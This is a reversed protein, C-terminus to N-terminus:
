FSYGLSFGAYLRYFIDDGVRSESFRDQTIPILLGARYMLGGTPKQHRFGLRITTVKAFKNEYVNRDFYYGTYKKMGILNLGVGAEAFNKSEARKAWLLNLEIPVRITTFDYNDKIRNLPLYMFGVRPVIKFQTSIPLRRDYNISYFEANGGLEIYAANKKFKQAISPLVNLLILSFLLLHIKKLQM